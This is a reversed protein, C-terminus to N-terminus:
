FVTVLPGNMGGSCSNTMAQMCRGGPELTANGSNFASVDQWGDPVQLDSLEDFKGIKFIDDKADANWHTTVPDQASVYQAITAMCAVIAFSLILRIIM